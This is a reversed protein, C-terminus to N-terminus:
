DALMQQPRCKMAQKCMREVAEAVQASEIPKEIRAFHRYPAPLMSSDYATVFTIPVKREILADAVAFVTQGAINVDLLAGDIAEASRAIELGAKIMGAPGIVTVGISELYTCLDLAVIYDDEMVLINCTGDRQTTAREM